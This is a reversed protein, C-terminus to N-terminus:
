GGLVASGVVVGVPMHVVHRGRGGAGLQAAKPAERQAEGGQGPGEVLGRRGGCGSGPQEGEGEPQNSM